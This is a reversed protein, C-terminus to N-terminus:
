LTHKGMQRTLNDTFELTKSQTIGARDRGISTFGSGDSFNFTPFAEGDPHQSIDIGQLGLQSIATSGLIPFYIRGVSVRSCKSSPLSPAILGCTWAMPIRRLPCWRKTISRRIRWM